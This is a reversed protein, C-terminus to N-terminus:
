IQNPTPAVSDNLKLSNLKRIIILSCFSMILIFSLATITVFFILILHSGSITNSNFMCKEQSLANKVGIDITNRAIKLSGNLNPAKIERNMVLLNDLRTDNNHQIRSVESENNLKTIVNSDDSVSEEIFINNNNNVTETKLDKM